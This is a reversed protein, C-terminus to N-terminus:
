EAIEGKRYYYVVGYDRNMELREEIPFDITYKEVEEWINFIIKDAEDRLQVVDNQTRVTSKQHIQQTQYGDKFISYMVSVKSISPNYIPVGGKSTRLKEGQIIKEGWELLLENSTLDPVQMNADELGYLSLNDEKIEARIVCFYLVQVFHSLYMKANKVKAQFTKNAKIQLDYAQQYKNCARELKGTIARAEEITHTSVALKQYDTNVSKLVATKLAKLRSSDTNPLRRYPM